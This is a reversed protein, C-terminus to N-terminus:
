CQHSLMQAVVEKVQFLFARTSVRIQKELLAEIEFNLQRVNQTPLILAQGLAERALAKHISSLTSEVSSLLVLNAEDKEIQQYYSVQEHLSSFRDVLSIFDTEM